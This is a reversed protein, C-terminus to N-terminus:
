GTLTRAMDQHWIAADLYREGSVVSFGLREYFGMASEQASLVVEVAPPEGAAHRELAIDALATVLRAGVGRGRAVAHVALRGLHVHGPADLLLRGTGLVEGTAEDVALVHTTTPDEDLEDVEIDAPVGQEDVFVAFRVRWAAELEERTTVTRVVVSM